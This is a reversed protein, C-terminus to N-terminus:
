NGEAPRAKTARDDKSRGSHRAGSGSRKRARGDSDPPAGSALKNRLSILASEVDDLLRRWEITATDRRAILVYDVGSAGFRGILARAAERLRRKSRNRAVAGGIKKTATFGVGIHPKDDARKRAQVVVCRRREAYGKAAFLFERRARLREVRPGGADSPPPSPEDCIVGVSAQPGQRPPAGPSESRKEDGDAVPLRPPTQSRSQETPIHTERSM